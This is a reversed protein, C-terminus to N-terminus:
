QAHRASGRDRCPSQDGRQSGGRQGRHHGPRLRSRELFQIGFPNGGPQGAPARQGPRRWRPQQGPQRVNQSVQGSSVLTNSQGNRTVNLYDVKYIRSRMRAPLIQYLGRQERYQYGYIDQVTELVEDITVNQLTLSIEGEVQPHVALNLPTGAVLSMFFERAPANKVAVDFRQERAPRSSPLPIELPPLLADTVEAPPAPPPLRTSADLSEALSDQIDAGNRAPNSQCAVLGLLL